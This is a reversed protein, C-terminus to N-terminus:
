RLLIAKESATAMPGILRVFYLGSGLESGSEDRGEWVLAHRGAPREADLLTRVRRGLADHVTVETWGARALEFRIEARPNFPNARVPDLRDASAFLPAPETGIGVPLDMISLTAGQEIQRSGQEQLFAVLHVNEEIWAGPLTFPLNVLVTDPYPAAFTLAAGTTDPVFRRFVHHHIDIGNPAAYAIDSETIAIRLRNNGALATEAIVHAIVEGARAGPDYSGGIEIRARAAVSKRQQYLAEYGAPNLVTPISPGDMRVSPTSSIQNYFVRNDVAAPNALYFPDGAYPFSTHYEIAVVDPKSFIWKKLPPDVV